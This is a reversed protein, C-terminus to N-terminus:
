LDVIEYGSEDQQDHRVAKYVPNVVMYRQDASTREGAQSVTKYAPNDAMSLRDASAKDRTQNTVDRHENTQRRPFPSGTLVM